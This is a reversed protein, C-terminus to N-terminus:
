QLQAIKARLEDARRCCNGYKQKSWTLLGIRCADMKSLLNDGANTASVSDWTQKIIDACDTAKIWMAEFMFCKRRRASPKPHQSLRASKSLNVVIPTHDSYLAHVHSVEVGPFLDVAEQTACARNLRARITNPTHQGHCWTFQFGKCGLDYLHCDSLVKRFNMIQWNQRLGTRSHFECQNLVENFDGMCVWPLTSQGSLTRLLDWSLKRKAAEPHGYFGTLRWPSGDTRVTVDIFSSSFRNLSIDIDKRWLLALGGFLGKADVGMGFWGFQVKLKDVARSSCKTEVLFVIDIKERRVIHRLERVTRSNNLGRCNWSLLNM